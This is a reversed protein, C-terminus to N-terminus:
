TDARVGERLCCDPLPKRFSLSESGRMGVEVSVKYTVWTSLRRRVGLCLVRM